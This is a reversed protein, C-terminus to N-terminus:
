QEEVKTAEFFNIAERVGAETSQIGANVSWGDKNLREFLYTDDYLHTISFKEAIDGIVHAYTGVLEKIKDTM